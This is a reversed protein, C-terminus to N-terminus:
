VSRNMSGTRYGALDLTVNKIGFESCLSIIDRRGEMVKSFDEPLVEIRAFDNGHLRFRFQSCGMNYLLNECSEVLHLKKLTIEEGTQVRTALCAFGPLNWTPLNIQKSLFRIENKSLHTELLPSLIGLERVAKMGPRYDKTDDENSGECVNEIGLKEACSIIKGFMAKKCIYCREPTNEPFGEISFPDSDVCILKIKEDACFKEAAKIERRPILPSSLIVAVANEGLTEHAIKLLFTSDVGGSFAVAVSKKEALYNKLLTLKKGAALSDIELVM